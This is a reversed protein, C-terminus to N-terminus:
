LDFPEFGEPFCQRYVYRATEKCGGTGGSSHHQQCQRKYVDETLSDYGYPIYEGNIYQLADAEAIKEKEPEFVQYIKKQVSETVSEKTEAETEIGRGCGSFLFSVLLTGCLLLSYVRKRM